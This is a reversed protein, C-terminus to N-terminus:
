SKALTLTLMIDLTLHRKEIRFKNVFGNLDM